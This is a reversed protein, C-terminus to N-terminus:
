KDSEKLLENAIDELSSNLESHVKATQEDIMRAMILVTKNLRWLNKQIDKAVIANEDNKQLKRHILRFIVGSVLSVALGGIIAASIPDM